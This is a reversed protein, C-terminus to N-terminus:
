RDQANKYVYSGRTRVTLKPNDKIRIEIKRAGDTKDKPYYGVTYHERLERAITDFSKALQKASDAYQFHGATKEALLRLYVTARKYAESAFEGNRTVHAPPGYTGVGQAERSPNDTFDAYTQYQVPYITVDSTEAVRILGDFSISKSTTDVGDTLVVIAKRGSIRAMRKAIVENLAQYLSTGGGTRLADIARRVVYRDSTSEVLVQVRKDFVVVIVRDEARLLDVFTLAAKKISTLKFETSDSVDLMLAITLPRINPEEGPSADPSEFYAIQQEVGNEFVRFQERSLDYVVKGRRDSVKVPLTVLTTEVRIVDDEPSTSPKSPVNQQAQVQSLTVFGFLLAPLISETRMDDM